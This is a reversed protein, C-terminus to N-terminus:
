ALAKAHVDLHARVAVRSPLTSLARLDAEVDVDLCFFAGDDLFLTVDFAEKTFRKRGIRSNVADRRAPGGGGRM